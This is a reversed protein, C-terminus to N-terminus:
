VSVALDIGLLTQDDKVLASGRWRDLNELVYSLSRALTESSTASFDGALKELGYMEGAADFQEVIGDTYALVRTGLSKLDFEALPWDDIGALIGIPLGGPVSVPGSPTFIVGHHGFCVVELKSTAPDLVMLLGTVFPTFGPIARTRAM